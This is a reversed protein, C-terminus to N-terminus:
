DFISGGETPAIKTEMVDIRDIKRPPKIWTTIPGDGWFDWPLEAPKVGSPENGIVGYERWRRAGTWTKGITEFAWCAEEELFGFYNVPLNVPIGGGRRAWDRLWVQIKFDATDAAAADTLVAEARAKYRATARIAKSFTDDAVDGLPLLLKLHMPLDAHSSEPAEPIFSPRPGSLIREEIQDLSAQGGDTQQSTNAAGKTEFYRSVDAGPPLTRRWEAARASLKEMPVVTRLTARIATALGQQLEVNSGAAHLARKEQNTLYSDIAVMLTWAPGLAAPGAALNKLEKAIILFAVLHMGERVGEDTKDARRQRGSVGEDYTKLGRELFRAPKERMVVYHQDTRLRLSGAAVAQLWTEHNPVEGVLGLFIRRVLKQTESLHEGPKSVLDLLRRVEAKAIEKEKAWMAAFAERYEHTILENYDLDAM